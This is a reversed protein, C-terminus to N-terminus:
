ADADTDADGNGDDIDVDFHHGGRALDFGFFGLSLGSVATVVVWWPESNAVLTSSVYWATLCLYGVGALRYWEVSWPLDFTSVILLTGGGVGFAFQVAYSPDTLAETGFGAVLAINLLLVFAGLWRFWRRKMGGAPASVKPATLKPADM